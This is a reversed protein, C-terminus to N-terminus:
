LFFTLIQQFLSENVLSPSIVDHRSHFDVCNFFCLLEFDTFDIAMDNCFYYFFWLSDARDKVDNNFVLFFRLYLAAKKSSIYIFIM